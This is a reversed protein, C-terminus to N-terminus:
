HSYGNHHFPRQRRRRWKQERTEVKKGRLRGEEPAERIRLFAIIEIHSTKTVIGVERTMHYGTVNSVIEAQIWILQNEPEFPNLGSELM